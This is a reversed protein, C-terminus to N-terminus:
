QTDEFNMNIPEKKGCGTLTTYSGTLPVSRDTRVLNVDDIWITGTGNLMLGFTVHNATPPIDVVISYETWDTNGRIPRDDMNDFTGPKTTDTNWEGDVRMWLQATGSTLQTKVWATLKVRQDLYNNPVFPQMLNGFENPPKTGLSKIYGSATGNHHVTKDTGIEYSKNATYDIWGHIHEDYKSDDVKDAKQEKPEAANASERAIAPASKQYPGLSLSTHSVYAPQATHNIVWLTFSTANSPALYKAAFPTWKNKELSVDASWSKLLRNSSDYAFANVMVLQGPHTVRLQCSFMLQHNIPVPSIETGLHSWSESGPKVGNLLVQKFSSSPELPVSADRLFWGDTGSSFTPNTLLEKATTAAGSSQIVLGNLVSLFCWVTLILRFSHM